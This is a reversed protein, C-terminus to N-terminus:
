EEGEGVLVAEEGFLPVWGSFGKELMAELWRSFAIRRESAGLRM